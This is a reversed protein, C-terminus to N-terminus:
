VQLVAAMGDGLAGNPQTLTQRDLIDLHWFVSAVRHTSLTMTGGDGDAQFGLKHAARVYGLMDLDTLRAVTEAFPEAEANPEIRVHPRYLQAIPQTALGVDDRLVDMWGQIQEPTLSVPHPLTIPRDGLEVPAGQRDRSQGQADVFFLTDDGSRFVSGRGFRGGIPHEVLLASFATPTWPRETLMAEELRECLAACFDHVREKLTKLHTRALAVAQADDQKRKSPLSKLPKGRENILRVKLNLDLRLTLTRSGYVFPQEGRHDFGLTPLLREALTNPDERRAAAVRELAFQAVQRVKPQPHVSAYALWGVAEDDLLHTLHNLTEPRELHISYIHGPLDQLLTLLTESDDSWVALLRRWAIRAYIDQSMQRLARTLAIRDAPELHPAIAVAHTDPADPKHQDLRVLLVRLATPSLAPGNLVRVPPLAATDIFTPPRRTRHSAMWGDLRAAWRPTSEDSHRLPIPKRTDPLCTDLADRLAEQVPASREKTIASDLPEVARADGWRALVRAAATRVQARGARLMPVLRDFPRRESACQGLARVSVSRISSSSDTLGQELLLEVTGLSDPELAILTELLADTFSTKRQGILDRLARGASATAEPSSGMAPVFCSRLYTDVHYASNQDLTMLPRLAIWPTQPVDRGHELLDRIHQTSNSLSFQLRNELWTAAVLVLTLGGSDAHDIWREGTESSSVYSAGGRVKARPGDNHGRLAVLLRERVEPSIAADLADIDDWPSGGDDGPAPAKALPELLAKVDAVRERELRRVALARIAETTPLAALVRAAALRRAKTRAFLEAELREGLAEFSGLGLAQLGEMAYRRADAHTSGAAYLLADAADPHPEQALLVVTFAHPRLTGSQVAAILQPRALAGWASFVQTARHRAHDSLHHQDLLRLAHSILKPSPCSSWFEWRNWTGPKILVPERRAAPMSALLTHMWPPNHRLLKFAVELLPDFKPDLPLAERREAWTFLARILCLVVRDYASDWLAELAKAGGTAQAHLSQHVADMVIPEGIDEVLCRAVEDESLNAQNLELALELRQEPSRFPMLNRKVALPYPQVVYGYVKAKEEPTLLIGHELLPAYREPMPRKMRTLLRALMMIPFPCQVPEDGADAELAEELVACVVAYVAEDGASTAMTDLAQQAAETDNRYIRLAARVQAELPAHAMFPAIGEWRMAVFSSSPASALEILTEEWVPAPWLAALRETHEQNVAAYLSNLKKIHLAAMHPRYTDPFTVESVHGELVLWMGFTTRLPEAFTTWREVM